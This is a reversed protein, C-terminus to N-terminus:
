SGTRGPEAASAQRAAEGLARGFLQPFRLPLLLTEQGAAQASSALLTGRGLAPGRVTLATPEGSGTRELLEAPDGQPGFHDVLDAGAALVTDGMHTAGGLRRATLDLLDRLWAEAAAAPLVVVTATGSGTAVSLTQGGAVRDRTVSGVRLEQDALARLNAAFAEAPSRVRTTAGRGTTAVVAAGCTRLESSLRDAVLEATRKTLPDAARVSGTAELTDSDPEYAARRPQQRLDDLAARIAAAYRRDAADYARAAREGLFGLALLTAAPASFIILLLQSGAAGRVGGSVGIGVTIGLWILGLIAGAALSGRRQRTRAAPSLTRPAAM